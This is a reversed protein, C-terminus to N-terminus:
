DIGWPGRLDTRIAEIPLPAAAHHAEDIILLEFADRPIRKLKRVLSPVSALVYPRNWENRRRFVYGIRCADGATDAVAIKAASQDLIEVRHAVLLVRGASRAALHAIIETKGCGTPLVILLRDRGDTRADLVHKVCSNQYPRLQVQGM